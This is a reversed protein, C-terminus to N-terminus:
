YPTASTRKSPPLFDVLKLQGSSNSEIFKGKLLLRQRNPAIAIRTSIAEQLMAITAVNKNEFYFNLRDKGHIVSACIDWSDSRPPGETAISEKTSEMPLVKTEAADNVEASVLSNESTLPLSQAVTHSDSPNSDDDIEDQRGRLRRERGEADLEAFKGQLNCACKTMKGPKKCVSESSIM